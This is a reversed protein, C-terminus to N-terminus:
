YEVVQEGGFTDMVELLTKFKKCAEKIIDENELLITIDKVDMNIGNVLNRVRDRPVKEGKKDTGYTLIYDWARYKEVLSKEKESLDVRCTLLFIMGKNGGFIGKQEQQERKIILKM